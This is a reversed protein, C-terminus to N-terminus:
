EELLTPVSKAERDRLGPCRRATLNTIRELRLRQGDSVTGSEFQELGFGEVDVAAIVPRSDASEFALAVNKFTIRKAERIYFGSAPLPGLKKTPTGEALPLARDPLKKGGGRYVIKVNELSINEM